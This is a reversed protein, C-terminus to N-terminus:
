RAMGPCCGGSDPWLITCTPPKACLVGSARVSVDDLAAADTAGGIVLISDSPLVVVAALKRLGMATTERARVWTKGEDSSRWIDGLSADAVAEARGLLVLLTGSSLM